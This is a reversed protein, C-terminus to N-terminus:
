FLNFIKDWNFPTFWDRLTFPHADNFTMHISGYDNIFEEMLKDAAARKENVEDYAAKVADYRSKREKKLVEQKAALEKEQEEKVSKQLAALEKRMEAIKTQKDQLTLENMM